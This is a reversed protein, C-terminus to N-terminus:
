YKGITNIREYKNLEFETLKAVFNEKCEEISIKRNSDCSSFFLILSICILLFLKKKM